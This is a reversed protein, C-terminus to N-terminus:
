ASGTVKKLQQLAQQWQERQSELQSEDCKLLEVGCKHMDKSASLWAGAKDRANSEFHWEQGRSRDVTLLWTWAAAASDIDAHRGTAEREAKGPGDLLGTLLLDHIMGVPGEISGRRTPFKAVDQAAKRASDLGKLFTGFPKPKNVQTQWIEEAEEGEIGLSALGDLGWKEWMNKLIDGCSAGNIIELAAANRPSIGGRSDIRLGEEDEGPGDSLSAFLVHATLNREDDSGAVGSLAEEISQLSDGAVWNDGVVLGTDVSDLVTRRIAMAILGENMSLGQWADVIKDVGEDAAIPLVKDQPWGEPTWKADITLISPLFPPLMSLALHHIFSSDKKSPNELATLSIALIPGHHFTMRIYGASTNGGEVVVAPDLDATAWVVKGDIENEVFDFRSRSLVDALWEPPPNPNKGTCVFGGKWTFFYMGKKAHNEWPLMRLTLHNFNQIGALYGQKGDGRRIFSASGFSASGFKGVMKIEEDHAAHLSGAFAKAVPDGSRSMMRKSLWAVDNKKAIIRDLAKMTKTVPNSILWSKKAGLTLQPLHAYPSELLNKLQRTMKESTEKNAQKTGRMRISQKKQGPFEVKSPGAM